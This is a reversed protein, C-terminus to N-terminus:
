NTQDNADENILYRDSPTSVMPQKNRNFGFRGSMNQINQLPNSFEGDRILNPLVVNGVGGGDNRSSPGLHSMGIMSGGAGGGGGGGMSGTQSMLRQVPTFRSGSSQPGFNIVHGSGPGGASLKSNITSMSMTTNMMPKRMDDMEDLLKYYEARNLTYLYFQFAGVFMGIFAMVINEIFGSRYWPYM